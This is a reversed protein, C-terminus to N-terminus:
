FKIDMGEYQYQRSELIMNDKSVSDWYRTFSMQLLFTMDQAHREGWIVDQPDGTPYYECAYEDSPDEWHYGSAGNNIALGFHGFVKQFIGPNYYFASYPDSWDTEGGQARAEGAPAASFSVALMLPLILLRWRKM